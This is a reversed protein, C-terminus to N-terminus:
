IRWDLDLDDVILGTVGLEALERGREPTGVGWSFLLPTKSRVTESTTRDLIQEHAVVGVNYGLGPILVALRLQWRNRCSRLMTTAARDRFESLVWWSRSSVAAPHTSPVSARIRRASSRIFCKLDLQLPTDPKIAKLVDSLPPSSTGRELFRWREWLRHTPWLVKEHRVEVRRRFVHVDLEIMDSRNLARKATEQSNGARHAIIIPM